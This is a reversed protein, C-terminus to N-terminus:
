ALASSHDCTTSLPGLLDSTSPQSQSKKQARGLRNQAWRSPRFPLLSSAPRHRRPKKAFCIFPGSDMRFRRLAFRSASQHLRPNVLVAAPRSAKLAKPEACSQRPRPCTSSGGIRLAVASSLGGGNEMDDSHETLGEGYCMADCRGRGRRESKRTIRTNRPCGAKKGTEASTLGRRV